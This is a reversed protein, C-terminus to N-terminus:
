KKLKEKMANERYKSARTDYIIRLEELINHILLLDGGTKKSIEITSYGKKYLEDVLPFMREYEEKKREEKIPNTVHRVTSDSIGLISAIATNSKGEEHLALIEKYHKHLLTNKLGKIDIVNSVAIESLNTIEAIESESLGKKWLDRIAPYVEDIKNDIDCCIRRIALKSLNTKYSIQNITFFDKFMKRTKRILFRFKKDVDPNLKGAKSASNLTVIIEADRKNRLYEIRDISMGSNYLVVVDEVVAKPTDELKNSYKGYADIFGLGKADDILQGLNNYPVDLVVSIYSRSRGKTYLTALRDLINLWRRSFPIIKMDETIVGDTILYEIEHTYEEDTDEPKWGKKCRRLIVGVKYTNIDDIM